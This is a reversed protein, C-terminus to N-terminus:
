PFHPAVLEEGKYTFDRYFSRMRFKEVPLYRGEELM